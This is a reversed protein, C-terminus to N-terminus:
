LSAESTEEDTRSSVGAGERYGTNVASSQPVDCSLTLFTGEGVKELKTYNELSMTERRCVTKSSISTPATLRNASLALSIHLKNSGQGSSTHILTPIGSQTDFISSGTDQLYISHVLFAYVGDQRKLNVKFAKVLIRRTADLAM